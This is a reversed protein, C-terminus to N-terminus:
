KDKVTVQLPYQELHEFATDRGTTKTNNTYTNKHGSRRYPRNWYENETPSHHAGPCMTGDSEIPNHKAHWALASTGVCLCLFPRRVNM